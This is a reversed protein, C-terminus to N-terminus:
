DSASLREAEAEDIEPGRKATCTEDTGMGPRHEVCWYDYRLVRDCGRAVYIGKEGDILAVGIQDAPCGLAASADDRIGARIRAEEDDAGPEAAGGAAPACGALLLTILIARV